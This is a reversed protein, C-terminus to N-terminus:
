VLWAPPEDRRIYDKHHGQSFWDSHESNLRSDPTLQSKPIQQVSLSRGTYFVDLYEHYAAPAQNAGAALLEPGSLSRMIM